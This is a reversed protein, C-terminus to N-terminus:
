ARFAVSEPQRKYIRNLHKAMVENPTLFGLSKRPRNNLADQVKAIEEETVQNFDTKKPFYRRIQGNTHENLGRDCSRYPRAFYIKCGIEAAIEQHNSFETGNDYTITKFPVTTEDYVSSMASQIAAASKNVTKRMLTFKSKRDVLTLICNKGGGRVGVITDGEFDGIRQKTDVIKPRQSIDVRNKINSKKGSGYKYKKGQHPLRKYLNGGNAKDDLIFAYITQHSVSQKIDIQMRGSIQEPSWGEKLHLIVYDKVQNTFQSFRRKTSAETRRLESKLQATGCYYKAYEDANRKLERYISSRDIKLQLAIKKVSDLNSLRQSIYYRDRICM